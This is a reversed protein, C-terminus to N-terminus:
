VMSYLLPSVPHELIPSYTLWDLLLFSNFLYVSSTSRSGIIYYLQPCGFPNYLLSMNLLSVVVM